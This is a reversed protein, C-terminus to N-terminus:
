TDADPPQPLAAAIANAAQRAKDQAVSNGGDVWTPANNGSGDNYAWAMASYVEKAIGEIKAAEIPQWASAPITWKTM